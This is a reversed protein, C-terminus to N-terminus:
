FADIRELLISHYQGMVAAQACLRNRELEPLRKFAESDLFTSLRDLRGKLEAAESVVRQRYLQMGSEGSVRESNIMTKSNISM